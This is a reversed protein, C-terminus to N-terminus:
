GTRAAPVEIRPRYIGRCEFDSVFADSNGLVTEGAGLMLGGDPAIASALRGYVLRRVDPTLYFLVNRCLILDFPGGPPRDVLNHVHFRVMRALAPDIRWMDGDSTFYRLMLGVPLGRQIELQSYEGYRARAIAARSLDTAVIDIRWGAWQAPAEAFLMALTYAEQGTSCGASWVRLRRTAARAAALRTLARSEVQRFSALDRFFYTENNLLADVVADALGGADNLLGAVLGDLTAFGREQMLPRLATEIRWRRSVALQQGSRAELLGAIIRVTGDSM